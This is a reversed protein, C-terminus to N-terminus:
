DKISSIPFSAVTFSFLQVVQCINSSWYVGQWQWADPTITSPERDLGGNLGAGGQNPLAVHTKNM